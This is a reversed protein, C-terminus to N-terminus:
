VGVDIEDTIVSSTAGSILTQIGAKANAVFLDDNFSGDSQVYDIQVDVDVQSGKNKGKSFKVLSQDVRFYITRLYPRFMQLVEDKQFISMIIFFTLNQSTKSVDDDSSIAITKNINTLIGELKDNITPPLQLGETFTSVLTDHFTGKEVRFNKELTRISATAVWPVTTALYNIVKAKYIARDNPDDKLAGSKLKADVADNAKKDMFQANLAVDGQVALLQQRLATALTDTNPNFNVYFINKTGDDSTSKTPENAMASSALSEPDELASVTAVVDEHEEEEVLPLTTKELIANHADM